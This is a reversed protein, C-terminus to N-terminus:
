NQQSAMMAALMKGADAVITKTALYLFAMGALVPIFCIYFAAVLSGTVDSILGVMPPALATGLVISCLAFASAGVGRSEAPVVDLMAARLGPTGAAAALVGIFQLFIRLGVVPTAFSAMFLLSCLTGGAVTIHIRLAPGRQALFRDALWGGLITGIIGGVGFVGGALSTAERETMDSYREHYQALFTSVGAVTFLLASVGALIYRMTRIGFIFKLESRLDDRMQRVFQGFPQRGPEAGADSDPSSVEAAPEPTPAVAVGITETGGRVPEPLRFALIALLSGPMGVLVFAWRWGLTDAVLGGLGLGLGTGAFLAVQQLSFARARKDPPYYDGILSTGAPDDFSQGIGMVTRAFLLHVYNVATASLLILGSWSALTFGIIRTRRLNDALWGGPITAVANMIVFASVLVGVQLDNIGWEDQLTPAVGRVIATDTFDVLNVGGLFLMPGLGYRVVSSGSGGKGDADM